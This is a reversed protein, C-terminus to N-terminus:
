IITYCKKQKTLIHKLDNDSSQINMNGNNFDRVNDDVKDNEVNKNNVYVTLLEEIMIYMNEDERNFEIYEPIMGDEDFDVNTFQELEELQKFFKSTNFIKSTIIIKPIEEKM